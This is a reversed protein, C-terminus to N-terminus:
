PKRAKQGLMQGALRGSTMAWGIHLGHGWLIQGGLGNQGVAYLGEIPAGAQDLVQFDQNISAGGETTTFTARAPGLLIWPPSQLPYHDGMRGFPDPTSGALAQNFTTVTNALCQPDLNREAALAPLSGARVAIDPRITLYDEVYAYAIKPATSIFHPWASYQEALRNDLLIYSHKDPQDAVALERDPSRKENCFRDGNANVLIAGHDFLADEPHQWTVVTDGSPPPPIFRLEPGYTVDMNVLHGGVAAALKQGDGTSHPNIGEINAYRKGKHDAILDPANTYDGAALVVGHGAHYTLTEGSRTVRVGTVRQDAVLLESVPANCQITGGLQRLRGQLTTIYAKASPVVNHMRPVRNPPEPVPDRFTVGLGALWQLTAAGHALFYARLAANNRAEIEPEAFKAADAIHAELSDSIGAQAQYHTQNATFTGVALATTGGVEALKELVLVTAGTEAASVAAALGSGGGGVIILDYSNCFQEQM